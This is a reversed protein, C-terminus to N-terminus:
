KMYVLLLQKLLKNENDKEKLENQNFQNESLRRKLENKENELVELLEDLNSKICKDAKVPAMFGKSGTKLDIGIYGDETKIDMCKNETWGVLGITGRETKVFDGVKFKNM